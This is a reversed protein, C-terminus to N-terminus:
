SALIAVGAAVLGGGAVRALLPARTAIQSAFALGVGHLAATALVFGLAYGLGSAGQPLEAGHAHGHFIAFIACAATGAALPPTLNLAIALGLVVVSVAIGIEVGPLEAGSMGWLGAVVMMSVFAVPYAFRAKGGVLGAWLGVAVMTLVHDIGFLPHMLGAEFGHVPGAGTHALAPGALAVTVLAMGMRKVVAQM